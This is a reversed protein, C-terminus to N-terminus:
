SQVYKRGVGAPDAQGEAELCGHLGQCKMGQEPLQLVGYGKGPKECGGAGEEEQRGEVVLQCPEGDM